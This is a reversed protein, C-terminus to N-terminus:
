VVYKQHQKLVDLDSTNKEVKMFEAPEVLLSEYFVGDVVFRRPGDTGQPFSIEHGGISFFVDPGERFLFFLFGDGDNARLATMGDNGCPSSRAVVSISFILSLFLIRRALNMM